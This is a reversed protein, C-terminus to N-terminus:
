YSIWQRYYLYQQLWPRSWPNRACYFVSIASILLFALAMGRFWCRATKGRLGEPLLLLWLPILWFFWRLGCCMGGYNRNGAFFTYFVLLLLTLFTALAAFARLPSDRSRLSRWVGILTFIFIPSLSFIGHHGVLMHFVYVPWPEYMNDVGKGMQGTPKGTAPDVESGVLRGSAPDILWYSGPYVYASKHAYAPELDGTVLYNTSIQGAIPLLALPLFWSLTQRRAKWALGAGLAVLFAAAPFENAAAFGAFFGAVAFLRWGRRGECWILYAPYLAFFSSFAAVTHNNLTISFGTLFTGLGAAAMAYTRIWPDPALRDLLRSFLVLFLVLPPLNISAVIIRIVSEPSNRFSLRGFSLKKLLLYEGALLTELLPPKSSYYHGRLRVRDITEPWPTEDINYTGREALSYVTAWRSRDNVGHM